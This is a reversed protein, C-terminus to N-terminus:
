DAMKSHTLGTAWDAVFQRISEAFEQDVDRDDITCHIVIQEAEDKVTITWALAHPCNLLSFRVGQRIRDCRVDFMGWLCYIEGEDQAASLVSDISDCYDPLAAITLRSQLDEIRWRDAPVECFFEM